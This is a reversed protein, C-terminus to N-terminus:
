GRSKKNVIRDKKKEKNTEHKMQGIIKKENILYREYLKESIEGEDVALKVSCDPEHTHTCDNFKCGDKLRFIPEYLIDFDMDNTTSITKFGPSDILYSGTEKMNIMTTVTTTHKGKGDTRVENTTLDSSNLLNILTSKGVGSAGIFMATRGQIIKSKVEALTVAQYISFPTIPIDPYTSSIDTIIEVTKDTYDAKSILVHMDINDQSFSMLYREFKGLTFRQDAAILIFLQDVNAALTQENQNEKMSKSADSSQKSIVSNRQLISEIFIHEDLKVVSVYDGVVIDADYLSSVAQVNRLIKGELVVDFMHHNREVIRGTLDGTLDNYKAYDKIGFDFKNQM